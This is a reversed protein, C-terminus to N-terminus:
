KTNMSVDSSEHTFAALAVPDLVVDLDDVQRPTQQQKTATEKEKQTKEEFQAMDASIYELPKTLLFNLKVNWLPYQQRLEAQILGLRRKMYTSKLNDVFGSRTVYHVLGVKDQEFAMQIVVGAAVETPRELNGAIYAKIANHVSVRDRDTAGAPKDLVTTVQLVATVPRETHLYAEIREKIWKLSRAGRTDVTLAEDEAM